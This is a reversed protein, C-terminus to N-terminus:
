DWVYREDIAVGHKACIARFEDQFTMRGHHERQREIYEVVWALRFLQGTPGTWLLNHGFDAGLAIGQAPHVAPGEARL